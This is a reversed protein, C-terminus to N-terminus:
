VGCFTIQGITLQAMASSPVLFDTSNVGASSSPTIAPASACALTLRQVRTISRTRLLASARMGVCSVHKHKDNQLLPIQISRQFLEERQLLACARDTLLSVCVNCM